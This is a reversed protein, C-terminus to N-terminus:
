SSFTLYRFVYILQNLWLLPLTRVQTARYAISAKLFRILAFFSSPIQLFYGQELAYRKRALWLRDIAKFKSDYDIMVENVANLIQRSHAMMAARQEAPPKRVQAPLYNVEHYLQYRWAILRQHRELDIPSIQPIYKEVLKRFSYDLVMM